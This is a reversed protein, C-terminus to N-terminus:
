CPKSKFSCGQEGPTPSSADLILRGTIQEYYLLKAIQSSSQVYQVDVDLKKTAVLFNAVYLSPLLIHSALQFTRVYVAYIEIARYLICMGASASQGNLKKQSQRRIATSLLNFRIRSSRLFFNSPHGCCRTLGTWISLLSIFLQDAQSTTIQTLVCKLSFFSFFAYRHVSGGRTPVQTRFQIRRNFSWRCTRWGTNHVSNKALNEYGYRAITIRPQTLKWIFNPGKYPRTYPGNRLKVSILKDLTFAM